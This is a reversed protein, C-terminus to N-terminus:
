GMEVVIENVSGAAQPPIAGSVMKGNVMISKVGKEVGKPNSVKIKYTADRWQRTIEFEKWDAPVCPDVTLGDFGVRVGLMWHTVAHYM